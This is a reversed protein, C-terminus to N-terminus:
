PSATNTLRSVVLGTYHQEQLTPFPDSVREFSIEVDARGKVAFILDLYADVNLGRYSIPVKVQYAVSSDGVQPFSMPSVTAAGVKAGNPLTNDTGTPHKIEQNILATVASSLCNPVKAGSVLAFSARQDAATARYGVTSSATKNNSDSFNPLDVSAPPSTWSAESVGLCKALDSKISAPGTDSSQPESTWGAPFDTL